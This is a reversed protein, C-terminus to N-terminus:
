ELAHSGRPSARVIGSLVTMGEPLISSWRVLESTAMGDCCSIAM